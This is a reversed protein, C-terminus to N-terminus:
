PQSFSNDIVTGASTDTIPTEANSPHEDSSLARIGAETAIILSRANALQELKFLRVISFPTSVIPESANASQALRSVIIIGEETVLISSRANAPHEFKFVTMKCAPILVNSASANEHHLEKFSIRITSKDPHHSLSKAVGKDLGAYKDFARFQIPSIRTSKVIGAVTVRM